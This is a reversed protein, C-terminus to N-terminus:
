RDNELLYANLQYWLEFKRQDGNHHKLPFLGGKGNPEYQRWIVRELTDDVDREDIEMRDNYVHLGINQVLHWFWEAPTGDDLFSVRRSLALLMEYFSCGLGMWDPDINWLGLDNVFEDRIAKGDAMRNDDNPVIWIFEKQYFLKLLRRYTRATPRSQIQGVHGCLWNFYAEDLPVSEM